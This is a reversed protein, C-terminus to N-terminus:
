KKPHQKKINDITNIWKGNNLNNNKIDHYLMDFQEVISPYEYMRLQDYTPTYIPPPTFKGDIYKYEDTIDDPCDVWYWPDAVPFDKEAIQMVTNESILAKM